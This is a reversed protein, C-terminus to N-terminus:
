LGATHKIVVSTIDDAPEMGRAFDQLDRIIERNLEAASLDPKGKKLLNFLRPEGYMDKSRSVRETVGDSYLVLQDGQCFSTQKEIFMADPSLGLVSGTNALFRIERPGTAASGVFLPHPHGANAYTLESRNLNVAVAAMTMAREASQSINWVVRNLERLITNLTLDSRNIFSDCYGKVVACVIASGTGHGTVDGVLVVHRGDALQFHCWWDGGCESASQYHGHIELRSDALFPAPSPLLALQVFQATKLENELHQKRREEQMLRINQLTASINPLLPEIRSLLAEASKGKADPWELRLIGLIADAKPSNINLYQAPAEAAQDSELDFVEDPENHANVSYFQIKEQLGFLQGSFYATVKLPFGAIREISSKMQTELTQFTLASSIRVGEEFLVKLNRTASLQSKVLNDVTRVLEQLDRQGAYGSSQGESLLNLTTQLQDLVAEQKRNQESIEENLAIMERSNISLSRDRLEILRELESFAKDLADVTDGFSERFTALHTRVGEDESASELARLFEVLEERSGMDMNKTFIRRVTKNLM